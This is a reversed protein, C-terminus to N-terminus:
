GARMCVKCGVAAFVCVDCLACVEELVRLPFVFVVVSLMLAPRSVVRQRTRCAFPFIPLCVKSPLHFIGMCVEPRPSIIRRQLLSNPINENIKKNKNKDIPGCYKRMSMTNPTYLFPPHKMKLQVLNQMIELLLTKCYMAAPVRSASLSCVLYMSAFKPVDVGAHRVVPFGRCAHQVVAEALAVRGELNGRARRCEFRSRLVCYATCTASALSPLPPSPFRCPGGSTSSKRGAADCYVCREAFRM